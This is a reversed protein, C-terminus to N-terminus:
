SEPATKGPPRPHPGRPRPNRCGRAWPSRTNRCPTRAPRQSTSCECACSSRERPEAEGAACEPRSVRWNFAASKPRCLRHTEVSRLAHMRKPQWGEGHPATGFTETQTALALKDLKVSLRSDRDADQHCVRWAGQVATQLPSVTLRCRLRKSGAGQRMFRPM